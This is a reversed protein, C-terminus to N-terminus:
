YLANQDCMQTFTEELDTQPNNEVEVQIIQDDQDYWLTAVGREKWVGEGVIKSNTGKFTELLPAQKSRIAMREIKLENAKAQKNARNMALKPDVEDDEVYARQAQTLGMFLFLGARALM